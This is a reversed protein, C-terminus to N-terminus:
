WMIWSTDSVVFHPTSSVFKSPQNVIEAVAM